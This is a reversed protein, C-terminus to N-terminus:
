KEASKLIGFIRPQAVKLIAPRSVAMAAGANGSRGRCGQCKEQKSPQRVTAGVATAPFPIALRILGKRM